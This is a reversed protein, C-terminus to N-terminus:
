ENWVGTIHSWTRGVKIAWVASQTVGYDAALKRQTSNSQYIDVVERETLKSNGHTTGKANRGKSVMDVHNDTHTGVTLHNPNVCKRNDCKHMVVDGCKIPKVLTHYSYRHGYLKRKNVEFRGYGNESLWGVWNWCGTEKDVEYKDTFDRM